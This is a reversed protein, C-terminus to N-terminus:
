RKWIGRSAKKMGLLGGFEIEKNLLAFVQRLLTEM